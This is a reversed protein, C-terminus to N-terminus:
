SFKCFGVSASDEFGVVGSRLAQRLESVSFFKKRLTNDVKKVVYRSDM